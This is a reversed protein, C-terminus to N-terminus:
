RPAVLLAQTVTGCRGFADALTGETLGIGDQGPDSAATLRITPLLVRHLDIRRLLESPPAGLVFWRHPASRNIEKPATGGARGRQNM